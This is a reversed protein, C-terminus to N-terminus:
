GTGPPAESQLAALFREGYRKLKAAGVGSVRSLALISDPNRRAMDILTRDHFVVFAPVNEEEAIARRLARLREFRDLAAGQLEAAASVSRQVKTRSGGGPDLTERRMEFGAEGRLVRWGEETVKWAGYRQIDMEALGAAYLQRFLSRWVPAPTDAGAGFTKVREHGFRQVQETPEGRLVAVLHELGFREGTRLVASMAKQALETAEV